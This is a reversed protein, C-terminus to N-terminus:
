RNDDRYVSDNGKLFLLNNYIPLQIGVWLSNLCLKAIQRLGPNRAMNEANLAVGERAFVSRVYDEQQEPTEVGKPWGSAEEKIQPFIHKFINVNCICRDFVGYYM